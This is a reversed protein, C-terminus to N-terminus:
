THEYMRCIFICRITTSHECCLDCCFEDLNSAGSGAWAHTCESGSEVQLTTTDITGDRMSSRTRCEVVRGDMDENAAFLTDNASLLSLRFGVGDVIQIQGTIPHSMTTYGSSLFDVLSV